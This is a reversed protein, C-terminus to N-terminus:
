KGFFKSSVNNIAGQAAAQLESKAKEILSQAQTSNKDLKTLVYQAVDIADQFKKSDYLANAQKMLYDVKSPVSGLTQANQIAEIATVPKQVSAAGIFVGLCLCLVVGRMVLSKM